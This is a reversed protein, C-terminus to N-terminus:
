IGGRSNQNPVLGGQILTQSINMYTVSLRDLCFFVDFVINMPLDKFLHSREIAEKENYPKKVGKVKERCLIAIILPALEWRGGSLGAANAELDSVQSFDDAVLDVGPVSVGFGEETTPLFYEAKNHKFSVISQPNYDPYHILGMVKTKIYENYILTRDNRNLTNLDEESIDSLAKIFEGYLAPLHKVEDTRTIQELLKNRQNIVDETQEEYWLAYEKVVYDPLRKSLRFITEAQSITIENWQTPIKLRNGSHLDINIM